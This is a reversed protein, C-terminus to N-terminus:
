ETSSLVRRTKQQNLRSFFSIYSRSPSPGHSSCVRRSSTGASAGATRGGTATRVRPAASHVMESQLREILDAKRGSVPLGRRVLEEKLQVVTQSRLDMADSTRKANPERMAIDFSRAVHIQRPVSALPPSVLRLGTVLVLSFLSALPAVRMAGARM